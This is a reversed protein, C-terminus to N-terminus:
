PRRALEAMAHFVAGGPSLRVLGFSGAAFGVTLVSVDVLGWGTANAIAEADQRIEGIRSRAGSAAVKADAECTERDLWQDSM